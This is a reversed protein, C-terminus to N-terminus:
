LKRGEMLDEALGIVARDTNTDSLAKLTGEKIFQALDAHEANRALTPYVEIVRGVDHGLIGPFGRRDHLHDAINRAVGIIASSDASAGGCYHLRERFDIKRYMGDHITRGIGMNFAADKGHICAIYVLPEAVLVKEPALDNIASELWDHWVFIDKLGEVHTAIYTLTGAAMTSVHASRDDSKDWYGAVAKYFLAALELKKDGSLVSFSDRFAISWEYRHPKTILLKVVDDTKCIGSLQESLRGTTAIPKFIDAAAPGFPTTVKPYCRADIIRQVDELYEIWESRAEYFAPEDAAANPCIKLACV